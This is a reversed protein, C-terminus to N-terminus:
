KFREKLWEIFEDYLSYYGREYHEYIVMLAIVGGALFCVRFFTSTETWPQTIWYLDLLVVSFFIFLTVFSIVLSLIVYFIFKLM